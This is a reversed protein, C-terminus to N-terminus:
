NKAFKKVFNNVKSKKLVYGTGVAGAIVGFLFSKKM